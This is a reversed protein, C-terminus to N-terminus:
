YPGFATTGFFVWGGPMLVRCPSGVPQPYFMSVQTLGDACTRTLPPYGWAHATSTTAALTAAVLFPAVFTTRKM